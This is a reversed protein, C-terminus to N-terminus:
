EIEKREDTEIRRSDLFAQMTGEFVCPLNLACFDMPRTLSTHRPLPLIDEFLLAIFQSCTFHHSRQRRVGLMQYLCNAFGYHYRRPNQLFPALRTDLLTQQADSLEVRLVRLKTRPYKKYFGSDAGNNIYGGPFFFPTYLRGFTHMRALRADPAYCVHSFPKLTFLRVFNSSLTGSHCIVIYASPM